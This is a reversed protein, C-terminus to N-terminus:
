PGKEEGSSDVFGGQDWGIQAGDQENKAEKALLFVEAFVEHVGGQQHTEKGEEASGAGEEFEGGGQIASSLSGESDVGLGDGRNEGDGVEAETDAGEDM